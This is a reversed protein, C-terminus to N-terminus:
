GFKIALTVMLAALLGVGAFIGALTLLSLKVPSIGVWTRLPDFGLAADGARARAPRKLRLRSDDFKEVLKWGARGEESLVAHMWVPDRFKGSASRLIKFEWDQALDDASYPTMEEEEEQDARQKAAAAASAAAAGAASM